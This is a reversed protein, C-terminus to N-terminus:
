EGVPRNGIGKQKMMKEIDTISRPAKETLVKCGTETVLVDDEIRIGINWYKKDVDKNGAPIYIGPEITIVEGIRLPEGSDVDHAQLGIPHSIGHPLYQKAEAEQKIIGLKLLGEAVVRLASKDLVKVPVDPKVEKIAVQNADYVIQYIQRQETNFAGNVPITRTLDACYGHYEAGIDMVVLDGKEMQRRNDDYHLILSNPGSGIICSFGNEEAGMRTFVYEIAAQLEYEYMGSESSRSAERYAACTIDIAHQLLVLEEPSKIQRMASIQSGISKIQLRPYKETLAKKGERELFYKKGSLPDFLFGDIPWGSINLTKAETLLKKLYDTFQDSPLTVQLGPFTLNDKKNTLDMRWISSQAPMFLIEKVKQDNVITGGPVLILYTDPAECGTLYYFDNEVRFRYPVDAIRTKVVGSSLVAIMTSDWTSMLRGRRQQYVEARIHDDESITVAFSMGGHIMMFAIIILFLQFIKKM